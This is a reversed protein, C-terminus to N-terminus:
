RVATEIFKAYHEDRRLGFEITAPFRSEYNRDRMLEYIWEALSNPLRYFRVGDAEQLAVAPLACRYIGPIEFADLGRERCDSKLAIYFDAALVHGILGPAEDDSVVPIELEPLCVYQDIHQIPYDQSM